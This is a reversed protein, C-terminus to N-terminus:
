PLRHGTFYGIMMEDKTQEGFGVWAGPDPNAPNDKSNDYWGTVKLVTGEPVDLPKALQYELQWNFDYHPVDLVIEKRGDPYTMEYRYAKGRVHSHPMFSIIRTPGRFTYSASVEANKAGPPILFSSNSAAQTMVEHEPPKDAFVFGIKPRDQVPTGDPTYHIQFSLTAGKPLLKATGAPFTVAAQGPVLGAFYGNLGGRFDVRGARPAGRRAAPPHVRAPPAGGAPQAHPDGGGEGVQGRHFEDAGAREPVPDSRPGAGLDAAGRVGRGAQRDEVGRLVGEAAARGQPGGRRRRGRGVRAPRRPRPRRPQPRQGLERVQPRRVVAAHRRRGVVKKVMAAHDKLDGYTMLTFPAPEGPRHCEQCNRQMIRSVRNHYTLAPRSPSEDKADDRTMVCGPATTAGVAPARGALTADLADALFKRRPEPLSYGLGFQDDIAGRYVLTLAADLVFVETSSGASFRRAIEGRADAVYRGAFGTAKLAAWADRMRQPSEHQDPNVLVFGVGRDRYQKELDTLTPGYKKAVPCGVGTMCVVTARKGRYDSLKGSKGDLDAFAVDAVLDGLGLQAAESPTLVQPGERVPDNVTEAPATTPAADSAVGFVAALSAVVLCPLFWHRHFARRSPM